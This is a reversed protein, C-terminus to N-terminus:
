KQKLEREKAKKKMAEKYADKQRKLEELRKEKSIKKDDAEVEGLEQPATVKEVMENLKRRFQKDLFRRKQKAEIQEKTEPPEFM